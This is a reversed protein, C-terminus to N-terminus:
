KDKNIEIILEKGGFEHIQDYARIVVQNIEEPIAIIASRTFPKKSHPHRLIRSGLIKDDSNLIVWAKAFHGWGEDTHQITVNFRYNGDGMFEVKASLVDAEGALSIVSTPLLLLSLLVNRM